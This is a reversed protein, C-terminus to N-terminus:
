KGAETSQKLDDMLGGVKMNLELTESARAMNKVLFESIIGSLSNGLLLRELPPFGEKELFGNLGNFLRYTEAVANDVEKVDLGYPLVVRPNVYRADLRTLHAM